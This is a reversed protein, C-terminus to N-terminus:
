IFENIDNEGNCLAGANKLGAIKELKMMDLKNFSARVMALNLDFDEEEKLGVRVKEEVIFNLVESYFDPDTPLQYFVVNRVGKIDLRKYFHLRETYLLLKAASNATAFAFRNRDLKSRSSYEDIAVFSVSTSEHLYNTLRVYDVYDAVYVLTGFDYSSKNLIQPLTVNKFFEFRKDPETALSTVEFRTFVQRLKTSKGAVGIRVLKSKFQEIVSVGTGVVPKFLSTGSQLNCTIKPNMVLSNLEPTAYKGFEVIQTVYKYQDNIAWMRIRSFDVKTEEFNTPPANLKDGVIERIHEWNQMLLGECKDMVCVEISSLFESDSSKKRAAAKEYIMRLGLPSAVIVDSQDLKSYLKLTKRTFKIGLSFFDNSNGKFFEKFDDPRRRFLTESQSHGTGFSDYFQEKFRKRNGVSDIQALEILQSVVEYASNRTPLLILVKARTYGQDRLWDDDASDTEDGEELAKIMRSKKENNALARSRTKQIHNICHLLYYRQYNKRLEKNHYYQMGINQYTLLSELLDVEVRTTPANELLKQRVKSGVNTSKLLSRISREPFSVEDVISKYRYDLRLYDDLRKRNSLVLLRKGSDQKKEYDSVLREIRKEDNFHADFADDVEVDVDDEDDTAEEPQEPEEEPLEDEDSEESEDAEQDEIVGRAVVGVEDDEEEIEEKYEGQLQAVLSGYVQEKQKVEELDGYEDDEESSGDDEVQEDEPEEYKHRAMSRNIQRKEKRGTKAKKWPREGTSSMRSRNFPFEIKSFNKPRKLSEVEEM